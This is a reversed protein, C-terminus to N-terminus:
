RTSAPLGDLMAELLCQHTAFDDIMHPLKEPWLFPRFAAQPLSQALMGAMRAFEAQDTACLYIALPIAPGKAARLQSVM